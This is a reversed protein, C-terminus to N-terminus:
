LIYYIKYGHSNEWYTQNSKDDYGRKSWWGDSYERYTLNDNNDYERKSWTGSCYERYTLNGNEDFESYPFETIGLQRARTKM